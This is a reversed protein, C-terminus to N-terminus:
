KISLSFEGNSDTSVGTNKDAVVVNVGSLRIGTIKDSVTGNVVQGFYFSINLAILLIINKM